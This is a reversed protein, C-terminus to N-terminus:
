RHDRDLYCVAAADLDLLLGGDLEGAAHEGAFPDFLALETQVEDAGVLHPRQLPSVEALVLDGVDEGERKVAAIPELRARRALEAVHHEARLDDALGPASGDHVPEQM